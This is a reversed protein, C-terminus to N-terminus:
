QGHRMRVLAETLAKTDALSTEKHPVTVFSSVKNPFERVHIAWGPRKSVMAVVRSTDTNRLLYNEIGNAWNLEM